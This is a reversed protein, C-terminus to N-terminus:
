ALKKRFKGLAIAFVVMAFLGLFILDGAVFSPPSAKLFINKLVEVFYRAQVVHTIAQLFRPMNDISYLFGSLLFAPLFTVVMALQSAVLQSKAITSVMIGLSLGGVLFMATVGLLFLFSGRLPVDFVWVGMAVSFLVDLVGIVFYPAMKGLFLEIPQVPTAILQEMTGSEWERSVTLSTLLATIVTMIVAILGPIIFWRSKLEPNYWVRLRNDVALEVKHGLQDTSFRHTIAEAYGLAITATNADSGDALVQVKTTRGQELDRAFHPPIVLALHAKGQDLLAGADAYNEVTAVVDFYSSAPFGEVYHRSASSKDQDYIVLNLTKIDMTIAYGFLILLILPMLFAMALSRPDRIIHIFEKKVLAWLRIWSFRHPKM